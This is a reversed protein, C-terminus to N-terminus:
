FERLLSVYTNEEKLRRENQLADEWQRELTAAVIRDGNGALAAAVSRPRHLV